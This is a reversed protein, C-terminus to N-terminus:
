EEIEDGSLDADILEKALAAKRESKLCRECILIGPVGALSRIPAYTKVTVRRHSHTHPQAKFSARVDIGCITRSEEHPRLRHVTNLVTHQVFAPLSDVAATARIADIELNQVEVLEELRAMAATLSHLRRQSITDETRSAVAFPSSLTGQPTLGLDSRLSRLPADQVYRMITEGSHRALIRIKNVDIGLAAFLQAGTVRASHGGFLRIGENSWLAQHLLTGIAEFLTVVTAKSPMAGKVNPFLPADPEDSHSSAGLWEMHAKALHYPCPVVKHGCICPWTRRVGLAKHDSKSGPLNWTLEKADDDFSWAAVRSTSAEVERLLFIIALLTFTLPNGPGMPVLTDPIGTLKALKDFLFACSQRAPGIGRLVSRTVWGSTHMLLQDWEFGTEIHQAKMASIYNPYSRYGAAKFLAGVMVLIRVTIPLYPVAPEEHGFAQDHFYEWTTALTAMTSSASRAYRDQLLSEVLAISGHTALAAVAAAVTGRRVHRVM